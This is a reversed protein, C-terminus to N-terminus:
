GPQRDIPADFTQPRIGVRDIGSKRREIEAESFIQQHTRAAPSAQGRIQLADPVAIGFRRPVIIIVGVYIQLHVVPVGLRRIQGFAGLRQKFVHVFIQQLASALRRAIIIVAASRHQMMKRIYVAEGSRRVTQPSEPRQASCPEAIRHPLMIKEGAIYLEQAFGCVIVYM